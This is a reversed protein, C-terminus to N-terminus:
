PLAGYKQTLPGHTRTSNHRHSRSIHSPSPPSLLLFPYSEFPLVGLTVPIDRSTSTNAEGTCGISGLDLFVFGLDLDQVLM